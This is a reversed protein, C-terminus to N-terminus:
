KKDALALHKPNGSEYLSTLQALGRGLTAARAVAGTAVFALALACILPTSRRVSTM